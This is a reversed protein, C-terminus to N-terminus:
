ESKRLSALVDTSVIAALVFGLSDENFTQRTPLEGAASWTQGPLVRTDEALVTSKFVTMGALLGLGHFPRFTLGVGFGSTLKTPDILLTPNLLRDCWTLESPNTGCVNIGLAVVPRVGTFDDSEIVFKESGTGNALPRDGLAYATPRGFDFMFGVGWEFRYVPDFPISTPTSASAGRYQVDLKYTLTGACSLPKAYGELRFAPLEDTQLIGAAEAALKYTGAVRVPPVKDCATVEVALKAGEPLVTWLEVTDKENIHRPLPFAPIGTPLHYIRFTRGFVSRRTIAHGTIRQEALYVRAAQELVALAEKDVPPAPPPSPDPKPLPELGTAQQPAPAPALLLECVKKTGNMVTLKNNAYPAAPFAVETAGARITEVRGVTDLTVHLNRRQKLDIKVLLKDLKDEILEKATECRDATGAKNMAIAVTFSTGAHALAPAALSAGLALCTVLAPRFPTM